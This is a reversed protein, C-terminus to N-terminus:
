LGEVEELAVTYVVTRSPSRIETPVARFTKGRLRVRDGEAIGSTAPLFLTQDRQIEFGKVPVVEPDQFSHGPNGYGDAGRPKLIEVDDPFRM